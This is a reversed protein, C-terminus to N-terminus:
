CSFYIKWSTSSVTDVRCGCGECSCGDKGFRVTAAERNGYYVLRSLSDAGSVAMSTWMMPYLTDLPFSEYRGSTSYLKRRMTATSRNHVQIQYITCNALVFCLLVFLLLRM